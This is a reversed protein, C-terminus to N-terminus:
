YTAGLSIGTQALLGNTALNAKANALGLEIDSLRDGTGAVLASRKRDTASSSFAGRAAQSGLLDPLDFQSHNRITRETAIGANNNLVNTAQEIDALRFGTEPGSPAYIAALDLLSAM